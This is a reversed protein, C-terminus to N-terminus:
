HVMGSLKWDQPDQFQLATQPTNLLALRTYIETLLQLGADYAELAHQYSFDSLLSKVQEPDTELMGLVAQEIVQQKTQARAEFDEWTQEVIEHLGQYFLNTLNGINEFLWYASDVEYRNKELWEGKQYVAPIRTTCAYVPIHPSTAAAALGAWLVGGVVDPLWSRSQTVWSTVTNATGILRAKGWVPAYRYHGSKEEVNFRFQADQQHYEDFESDRYYSKLVTLIDAPLLKRDPQWFLAYDKRPDMPDLKASPKLTQIGGWVRLQNGHSRLTSGTYGSPYNRPAPMDHTGYARSAHFPGDAPNWLGHEAAFSILDPACLYNQKDDPDIEGLRFANAMVVFSDDPIRAAAWHFGQYQEILWAEQPDALIYIDGRAGYTESLYGVLEVGERATKCRELVLTMMFDGVVTEPWPSIKEVKDNVLAGTSAGASVQFENIGGLAMPIGWAARNAVIASYAYTRAVQPLEIGSKGPITSPIQVTSPQPHEKAPVSILQSAMTAVADCNRGVLVSGDVTAKKGAALM